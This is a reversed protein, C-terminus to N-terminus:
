IGCSEIFVQLLWGGLFFFIGLCFGFWFGRPVYSLTSLSIVM